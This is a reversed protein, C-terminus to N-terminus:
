SGLEGTEPVVVASLIRCLQELEGAIQEPPAAEKLSAELVGAVETIQPFGYGGGAGKLQHALVRLEDLDGAAHLSELTAIRDKLEAVFEVVIEMMDPDSEYESHIPEM